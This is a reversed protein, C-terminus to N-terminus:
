WRAQLGLLASDNELALGHQEERHQYELQVKLNSKLEYWSLTGAFIIEDGEDELDRNDDLMELRLALNLREPLIMYGLSANASLHDIEVPLTQLSSPQEQPETHDWLLEALFHFGWAKFHLYGSAGTTQISKGDVYLYAGGTSLRLSREAKLDAEDEGVVKLPSFDLRGVFAMREIRNGLSSGVGKYGQHFGSQRQPGNYVGLSVRLHEKWPESHLTLGLAGGPSMAYTGLARDLHALRSSSIAEGYSFPLAALGFRVGGWRNLKLNIWAQYLPGGMREQDFLDLELKYNLIKPKLEGKMGMRARRLRFGSLQMKDGNSLLAEEGVWGSWLQLRGYLQPNSPEGLAPTSLLILLVVLRM